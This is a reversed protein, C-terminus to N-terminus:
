VAVLCCEHWLGPLSELQYIIDGGHYMFSGEVRVIKGAHELQDPQLKNHLSWTQGFQELAARNAIKVRSGKRFKAPDYPESSTM